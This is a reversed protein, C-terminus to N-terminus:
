KIPLMDALFILIRECIDFNYCALPPVNKSVRHIYRRFWSIFWPRMVGQIWCPAPGEVFTHLQSLTSIAFFNYSLRHTVGDQLTRDEVTDWPRSLWFRGKLWYRDIVTSPAICMHCYLALINEITSRGPTFSSQQLSYGTIGAVCPSCVRWCCM